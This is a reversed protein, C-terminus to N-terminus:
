VLRSMSVKFLYGFVLNSSNPARFILQQYGTGKGRSWKADSPSSVVAFDAAFSHRLSGISSSLSSFFIVGNSRLTTHERSWGGKERLHWDRSALSHSVNSFHDKSLM